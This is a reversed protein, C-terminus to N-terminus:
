ILSELHEFEKIFLLILDVNSQFQDGNTKTFSQNIIAPVAAM